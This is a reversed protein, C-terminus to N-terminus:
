ADPDTPSGGAGAPIGGAPVRALHGPLRLGGGLKIGGRRDILVASVLGLLAAGVWWAILVALATSLGAAGRGDYFTLSRFADTLYHMPHWSAVFRFFGPLAEAPYVGLASPVGFITTFLVGLLEGGIGFLTLFVLTVLAIASAGLAAVAFSQWFSATPMGLVEVGVVTVGLGAVVAGAVALIAKTAWAELPRDNRVEVEVELEDGLLELRHSGRLVDVMLSAVSTALFGSLTVMVGTYFPALGRGTKGTVSVEDITVIRVPRGIHAAGSPDLKVHLGALVDVIQRNASENVEQDV